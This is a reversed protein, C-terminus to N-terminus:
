DIHRRLLVARSGLCVALDFQCGGSGLAVRKGPHFGAGADAFIQNLPKVGM